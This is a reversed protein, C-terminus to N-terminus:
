WRESSVAQQPRGAKVFDDTAAGRALAHVRRHTAIQSTHFEVHFPTSLIFTRTSCRLDGTLCRGRIV